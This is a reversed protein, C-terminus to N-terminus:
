KNDANKKLTESFETVFKQINFNKPLKKEMNKLTESANDLFRSLSSSIDEHQKICKDILYYNMIESKVFDLVENLNYLNYIELDTLEGFDIDTIYKLVLSDKIIERNIQIDTELCQEVINQIEEALLYKNYNFEIDGINHNLNFYNKTNYKYDNMVKM